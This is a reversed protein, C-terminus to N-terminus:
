KTLVLSEINRAIAMFAATLETGDSTNFFHRPSSACSLMIDRASANPLKFGVTFIEIGAERMRACLTKAHPISRAAAVDGYLDQTRSAGSFGLNFDGDTMLIAYKGVEDPDFPAPVSGADFVNQWKNSLLYWAWQVGIHGGTGGDAVFANIMTTLKKKDATLPVIAAAPCRASAAYGTKGDAFDSLFFDRNVMQVDPGVDEYARAGVRETACNDPRGTLTVNAPNTNSARTGRAATSREIYVSRQAITSGANVSNAYPVLAIRVRPEAPNQKGLLTEVASKAAKQLDGLKDVSGSKKMSGTLDLMMAVEVKKDSYIAETEAVVRQHNQAGFLPFAIEFEASARASVTKLLRDVRVEELRVSTAFTDPGNAILFAEVIEPADEIAIAGTTLDRATSTVAADLAASLSSRTHTLQSVNVSYGAALMLVPAIIALM